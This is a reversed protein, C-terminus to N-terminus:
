AFERSRCASLVPKEVDLIIEVGTPVKCSLGLFLILIFISTAVSGKEPFPSLEQCDSDMFQPM